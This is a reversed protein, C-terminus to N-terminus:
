LLAYLCSCNRSRCNRICCKYCRCCCCCCINCKLFYCDKVTKAFIKLNAKKDRETGNQRSKKSLQHSSINSFPKTTSKSKKVVASAQTVDAADDVSLTVLNPSIEGRQGFKLLRQGYKPTKKTNPLTTLM